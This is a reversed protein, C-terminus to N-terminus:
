QLILLERKHLNHFGGDQRRLYVPTLRQESRPQAKQREKQKQLTHLIATVVSDLNQISSLNQMTIEGVIGNQVDREKLYIVESQLNMTLQNLKKTESHLTFFVHYAIGCVAIILLGLIVNKIM